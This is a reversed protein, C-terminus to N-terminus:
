TLLFLFFEVTVFFMYVNSVNILLSMVTTALILFNQVYINVYTNIKTFLSYKIGFYVNIKRINKAEKLKFFKISYFIM